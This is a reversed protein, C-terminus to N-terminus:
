VDPNVMSRPGNAEVRNSARLTSPFPKVPKKLTRSDGHSNPAKAVISIARFGDGAITAVM